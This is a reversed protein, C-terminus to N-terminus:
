PKPNWKTSPGDWILLCCGFPPRDGKPGIVAGPRDFRMRGKLFRVHLSTGFVDRHPEVLEQWWKQETRNAPVLMVIGRTLPSEAHAKAVWSYLDSYPPNCWVREGAWSQELGNDARAFFRDCKANHPAAAADLTFPGYRENFENFDAWTTGRDDVEDLAGRAGTQQPHNQARFGALAM